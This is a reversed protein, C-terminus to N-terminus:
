YEKEPPIVVENEIRKVRESTDKGTADIAELKETAPPENRSQFDRGTILKILNQLDKIQQVSAALEEKVKTLSSNTLDHIRDTQKVIESAKRNTDETKLSTEKALAAARTAEEAARRGQLLAAYAVMTPPIAAIVAVIAGIIAIIISSELM